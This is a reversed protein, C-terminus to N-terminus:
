RPVAVCMPPRVQLKGLLVAGPIALNALFYGVCFILAVKRLAASWRASRCGLTQFLSDIGHLLHFSLLGVAFIYCASVVPHQFGRIVMNYVDPVEATGAKIVLFGAIRYDGQMTYRPLNEKFTASQAAGLTFHALHYVLFALVIYGTARMTRSAATAQITHKFGYDAGRARQNELTLSTAAWLHVGVAVLVGIRAVWLLPGLGHLFAGYGNIHDPEQFIQLNGVLHGVIFGILVVGTVAM